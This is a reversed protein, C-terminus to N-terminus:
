KTTIPLSSLVYIMDLSLFPLPLHVQCSPSYLSVLNIKIVTYIECPDFVSYFSTTDLHRLYLSTLLNPSFPLISKFVM